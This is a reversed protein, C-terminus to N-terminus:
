PVFTLLGRTNYISMQRPKRVIARALANVAAAIGDIRSSSKSREPKTFMLNDNSEKTTLCSANRVGVVGKVVGKFLCFHKPPHHVLHVATRLLCPHRRNLFGSSLILVAQIGGSLPMHGKRLALVTDFQMREFQQPQQKLSLLNGLITTIALIERFVVSVESAVPNV